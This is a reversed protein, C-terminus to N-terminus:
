YSYSRSTTATMAQPAPTSGIAKLSPTAIFFNQVGQGNVHGPGDEVFTYLFHGNYAVQHGNADKVVTLTGKAGSETPRAALLPPWLQALEGTVLSRKATDPQYYYLPLGRGNVLVSESRGNVKATATRLTAVNIASEARGARQGGTLHGAPANHTAAAASGVGVASLAVTGAIIAITVRHRAMIKVKRPEFPTAQQM